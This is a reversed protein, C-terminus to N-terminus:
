SRGPRGNDDKKDDRKPPPPSPPTPRPQNVAPRPLQQQGPAQQVPRNQPTFAPRGPTPRQQLPSQNVPQNNPQSNPQSNIPQQQVPRNVPQNNAPQNNAPQQQAQQNNPQYPRGTPRGVPNTQMQQGNQIPQNQVPQNQVPQNQVSQNQVPQNQVPQNQFPQSQAPQNGQPYGGRNPFGNNTRTNNNNGNNWGNNNGRNDNGNGRNGNGNNGNSGNGNNGRNDNGNNGNDRGWANGNGRNDTGNGRNDNGRNDIGNGRNDNGRNDIGNGRNANGRNDNGNGRNDNGRNDNGNGYVMRNVPRANGLTQVRAPAFHRGGPAPNGPRNETVAGGSVRPRYVTFNGNDSRDGPNRGNRVSIPRVSAGSYRGVENPDPGAGYHVNRTNNVVTTNNIITTRNIITVNNTERVYYNNIQPSAIYRHPVFCWYHSPPAYGGGYAASYSINPGMPAWGYYDDSNRWSVWAPAWENGPIWMWGYGDQFYWRGYHFAAWGWPYGSDWAWGEDTYVWHGNTSYPKFDPGVDPLWVYGYNPDDIWQGYPSLDDYFNQYTVESPDAQPPPPLPAPASPPPPDQHVVYVPGCAAFGIAVFTLIYLHKKM